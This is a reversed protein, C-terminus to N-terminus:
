KQGFLTSLFSGIEWFIIGIIIKLDTESLEQFTWRLAAHSQYKVDPLGQFAPPALKLILVVTGACILRHARQSRM